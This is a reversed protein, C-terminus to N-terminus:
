VRKENLRAATAVADAVHGEGKNRMEADKVRKADDRTVAKDRPLMKTASTLVDQIFVKEEGEDMIANAEAAVQATAGIGGQTLNGHRTAKAEAAQVAAADAKDIPKDGATRAAAELAQGITFAGVTKDAGIPEPVTYQAM